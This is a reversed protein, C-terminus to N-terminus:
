DLDALLQEVVRDVPPPPGAAAGTEINRTVRLAIVALRFVSLVQWFRLRDGEADHGTLEAYGTLFDPVSWGACFHERRYISCTYWGLDDLPDGLRALEWDLVASIRGDHVLVNAPRFDGHVLTAPVSGAPLHARLWDRAPRMRGGPDLGAADLEAEWRDLEARAPDAGAAALAGVFGAAPLRHLRALTEVMERALALRGDPGLGLPDRDRLVARDARGPCRGVVASPRGLWEGAEDCWYARPVPVGTGALARLLRFEDSLQATVVVADRDQRLILEHRDRGSGGDWCADFAWIQKSSGGALPVPETVEPAAGAPLQAALFAILRQALEIM